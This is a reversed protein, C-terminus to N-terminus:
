RPRELFDIRESLVLPENADVEARRAAWSPETM